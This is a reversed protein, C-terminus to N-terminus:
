RHALVMALARASFQEGDTRPASDCTMRVVRLGAEEAMRLPESEHHYEYVHDRQPSELATSVFALGEPALYRAVSTFLPRPDAMHEALMAAIVGDHRGEALDLDLVDRAVFRARGAHPSAAALRNAIRIAPSSIDYGLLTADPRHELSVLGMAGHGCALELIRPATPLRDLFHDRFLGLHATMSPWFAYILVAAWMYPTMVDDDGYVKDIIRPLEDPTYRGAKEYALKAQAVHLCYADYGRVAAAFVDEGYAGRAWRALPDCLWSCVDRNAEYVAHAPAAFLKAASPLADLFDTGSVTRAILDTKATTVSM